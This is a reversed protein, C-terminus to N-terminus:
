HQTHVGHKNGKVILAASDASNQKQLSGMKTNLGADKKKQFKNRCATM